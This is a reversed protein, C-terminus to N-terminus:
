QQNEKTTENALSSDPYKKGYERLYDVIAKEMDDTVKGRMKERFVTYAVGLKKTRKVACKECCCRRPNIMDGCDKCHHHNEM